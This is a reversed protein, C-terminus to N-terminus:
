HVIAFAYVVADIGELYSIRAQHECLINVVAVLESNHKANRVM